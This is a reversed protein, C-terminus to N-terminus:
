TMKDDDDLLETNRQALGDVVVKGVEVVDGTTELSNELTQRMTATMHGRLLDFM